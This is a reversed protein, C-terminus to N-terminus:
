RHRKKTDSDRLSNSDACDNRLPRDSRVCVTALDLSSDHIPTLTTRLCGKEFKPLLRAFRQSPKPGQIAFFGERYYAGNVLEPSNDNEIATDIIELATEIRPVPCSAARILPIAL